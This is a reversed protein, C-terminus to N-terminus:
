EVCTTGVRGEAWDMMQDLPLNARYIATTWWWIPLGVLIVIAWFSLIVYLRLRIAEPTEPPPEKKQQIALVADAPPKESTVNKVSLAPDGVVAPTTKQDVPMDFEALVHSLNYSTDIDSLQL